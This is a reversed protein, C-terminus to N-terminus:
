GRTAREAARAVARATLVAVLELRYAKSARLDDIPRAAASALEAAERLVEPTLRKGALFEGVGAGMIPTPAVAGLAVAARVSIDGDLTVAAAAGALPLSLAERGGQRVSADGTGAGKAPVEIAVLVEGPAIVTTRPGTFFEALPVVREGDRSYLRVRAGLALLIPAMDASPVASCINGAVTALNRVQEAALSIAADVIGPFERAVDAHRAVENVTAMAGIVLGQERSFDIRALGAIRRLSVLRRYSILGGKLNVLVDTGGALVASGDPDEALLACAENVDRPEFYEFEPLNM